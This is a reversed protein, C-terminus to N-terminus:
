KIKVSDYGLDMMKKYKKLCKNPVDIVSKNSIGLFACVGIKKIKSSKIKVTKLKECSAFADDGIYTVNKPITIKTLGSTYFAFDGIIVLSNPLTAKKLAKCGSFAEDEIRKVGEPINISKLAVCDKFTEWDIKSISKPLTVKQLKTCGSFAVQEIIKVSDPIVIEKLASCNYFAFDGIELLGKPLDIKKLKECNAFAFNDIKVVGQPINIEMLNTCGDFGSVVKVGEPLVVKRVTTNKYFAEGIYWVPKGEVESPVTVITDNGVYKKIRVAGGNEIVTYEFDGYVLNDAANTEQKAGFLLLVALCVM